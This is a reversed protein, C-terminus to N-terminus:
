PRERSKNRRGLVALADRARGRRRPDPDGGCALQEAGALGDFARLGSELVGDFPQEAFAPETLHIKRAPESPGAVHGLDKADLDARPNVAPKALRVEPLQEVLMRPRDANEVRKRHQRLAPHAIAEGELVRTEAIQARVQSAMGAAPRLLGGPALDRSDEVDEALQMTTLQEMAVQRREVDEDAVAMLELEAIEADHLLLAIAAADSRPRHVRQRRGAVNQGSGRRLPLSAVIDVLDALQQAHQDFPVRPRPKSRRVHPKQRAAIM